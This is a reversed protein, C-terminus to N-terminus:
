PESLGGGEAHGRRGRATLALGSLIELLLLTGGLAMVSHPIWLPTETFYISTSGFRYSELAFRWFYWDLVATYVAALAYIVVDLVRRARGHARTRYADVRIFGGSRLTYALGLFTVVVLLYGSMEDSVLTSVRFLNRGLVEVTILLMLVVVATASIALGADVVRQFAQAVVTLGPRSGGM